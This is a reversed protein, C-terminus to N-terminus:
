KKKQIEPPLISEAEADLDPVDGMYALKLYNKRTLPVNNQKMWEVIHDM